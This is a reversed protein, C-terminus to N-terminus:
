HTTGADPQSVLNVIIRALVRQDEKSSTEWMQKLLREQANEPDIKDALYSGLKFAADDIQTDSMGVNHARRVQVQLFERWKSFDDLVHQGVTADFPPTARAGTTNTPTTNSDM